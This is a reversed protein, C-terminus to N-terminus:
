GVTQWSPHYEADFAMYAGAVYSYFIIAQGYTLATGGAPFVARISYENGSNYSMELTTVQADLMENTGPYQVQFTGHQVLTPVSVRMTTPLWFAIAASTRSTAVGISFPLKDNPSSASNPKYGYRMYYRQCKLLEESYNPLQYKTLYKGFEFKAWQIAAYNDAPTEGTAPTAYKSIIKVIVVNDSPLLYFSLNDNAVANAEGSNLTGTVYDTTGDEYGVSLTFFKGLYDSLGYIAQCLGTQVRIGRGTDYRTVNGTSTSEDPYWRDLWYTADTAGATSGSLDALNGSGYQYIPNLFNSNILLNDNSSGEELRTIEDQLTTTGDGMIVMDSNTKFILENNQGGQHVFPQVNIQM